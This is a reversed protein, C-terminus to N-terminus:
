KADLDTPLPEAKPCPMMRLARLAPIRRAKDKGKDRALAGLKDCGERLEDADEPDEPRRPRAALEVISELAVKADEDAEGAAVTALAPLQAWGRAFAMARLATTRLVPDDVAEVLGAAGEHVALTALDEESGGDRAHAWMVHDRVVALGADPPPAAARTVPAGDPGGPLSQKGCGGCASLFVLASALVAPKL